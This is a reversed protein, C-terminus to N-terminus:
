RNITYCDMGWNYKTADIKGDSMSKCLNIGKPYGYCCITGDSYTHLVYQEGQPLRHAVAVSDAGSGKAGYLFLDTQIRIMRDFSVPKGKIEIDLDDMNDTYEGNALFYANNADYISKSIALGESMRAKEVALQYQPLAVAALIGIILVVVLLEILTFGNTKRQQLGNYFLTRGSLFGQFYGKYNKDATAQTVYIGKKM